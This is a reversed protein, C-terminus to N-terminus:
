KFMGIYVYVCNSAICADVYVFSISIYVYVIYVWVYVYVHMYLFVCLVYLVDVLIYLCYM